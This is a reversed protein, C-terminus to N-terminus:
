QQFLNSKIHLLLKNIDFNIQFARLSHFIRRANMKYYILYKTAAVNGNARPMQNEASTKRPMYRMQMYTLDDNQWKRQRMVGWFAIM